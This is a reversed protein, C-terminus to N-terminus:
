RGYWVFGEHALHVQGSFYQSAEKVLQQLDGYQPLHSLILDQIHAQEAILAAEQSTMHGAESGNQHAFFNCDAIMMDAGRSFDIWRDDYATDATYVFTHIGNTIRMGYCPVPHKTKFFTIAFPGIELSQNPDYAIGKTYDATLSAFGSEDELHGYIPLTNNKGDVYYQVLQAYQLVGIDAIHDHHYHSLLVADIDTLQVYNQVKSLAGSGFDILLSFDNHEVLYVSTAGNPAPYGGWYGIVTVRM